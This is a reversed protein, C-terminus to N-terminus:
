NPNKGGCERGSGMEPHLCKVHSNTFRRTAASCLPAHMLGCFGGPTEFPGLMGGSGNAWQGRATCGGRAVGVDWLHTTGLTRPLLAQLPNETFVFGAAKLVARSWPGSTGMVQVVGEGASASFVALPQPAPPFCLFCGASVQDDPTGM